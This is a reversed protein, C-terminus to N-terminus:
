DNLISQLNSYAAKTLSVGIAKWEAQETLPLINVGEYGVFILTIRIGDKPMEPPLVTLDSDILAKAKIWLQGAHQVTFTGDKKNISTLPVGFEFNRVKPRNSMIIQTKQNYPAPSM